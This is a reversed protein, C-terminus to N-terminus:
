KGHYDIEGVRFPHGDEWNWMFIIRWQARITVAYFDKLDGKLKHFGAGPLNMDSPKEANNLADLLELLRDVSKPDIGKVGKRDGQERLAKLRKSTYTKIM